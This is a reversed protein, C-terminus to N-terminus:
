LTLLVKKRKFKRSTIMKATLSMITTKIMSYINSTKKTIPLNKVTALTFYTEKIKIIMSHSRNSTPMRIMMITLITKRMTVEKITTQINIM